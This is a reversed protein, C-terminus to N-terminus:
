AFSVLEPKTRYITNLLSPFLDVDSGSGPEIGYPASELLVVGPVAAIAVGVSARLRAAGPPLANTYQVVAARAEERVQGADFTDLVGFLLSYSLYEPLTRAILVQQGLLRFGRLAARVRATLGETARGFIDGIYLTVTGVPNGEGDIDEIATAAAVGPVTLAGAALFDLNRDLGADWLAYRARYAEDTERDAGGSSSLGVEANAELASGQSQVTLTQDFLAGPNKFKQSGAPVGNGASGLTTCTAYVQGGATVGAAFIVSSDLTWTLGGALIETGADVQGEGAATSTRSLQLDITAAAAGKRPLKGKSRELVLQDLDGETASAVLQAAFRAQSRSECEEAMASGVAALINLTSGTKDVAAPDLQADPTIRIRNRALRFFDQRNM